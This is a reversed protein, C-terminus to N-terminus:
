SGASSGASGQELQGDVLGVGLADLLVDALRERLRLPEAAQALAQEVERPQVGTRRQAALRDLQALEGPRDRRLELARAPDCRLLRQPALAVGLADGADDPQEDVVRKAVRRLRRDLHAGFRDVAVHLHADEVAAVADRGGLAVRDELAELPALPRGRRPEAEAERDAGLQCPAHAALEPELRAVRGGALRLARAEHEYQRM